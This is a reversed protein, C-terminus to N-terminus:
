ATLIASLTIDHPEIPLSDVIQASLALGISPRPWQSLLRDYHGAGNGLRQGALTAGVLPVVVVDWAGPSVPREVPAIPVGLPGTATIHNLDALHLESATMSRDPNMWPVVVTRGAELAWKIFPATDVEDAMSLYVHIRKANTVANHVVLQQTISTSEADRIAPDVARRRARLERRM